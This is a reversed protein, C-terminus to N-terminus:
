VCGEESDRRGACHRSEFGRSTISSDGDRIGDVASETRKEKNKKKLQLVFAHGLSRWNVMDLALENWFHPLNPRQYHDVTSCRWIPCFVLSEFFSVFCAGFTSQLMMKKLFSGFLRFFFTLFFFVCLSQALFAPPLSSSAPFGRVCEAKHRGILKEIEDNWRVRRRGRSCEGDSPTWETARFSRRNNVERM